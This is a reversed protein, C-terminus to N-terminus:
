KKENPRIISDPQMLDSWDKNTDAENVPFWNKEPDFFWTQGTHHNIKLAMTKNVVQISYTGSREYFIGALVGVALIFLTKVIKPIIPIQPIPIILKRNEINM